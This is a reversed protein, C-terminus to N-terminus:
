GKAQIIEGKYVLFSIYIYFFNFSVMNEINNHQGFILPISKGNVM